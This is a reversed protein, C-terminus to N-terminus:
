QNREMYAVEERFGGAAIERIKAPMNTHDIREDPILVDANELDVTKIMRQNLLFAELYAADEGAIEILKERVAQGTFAFFPAYNRYLPVTLNFQFLCRLIRPPNSWEQRDQRNEFPRTDEDLPNARTDQLLPPPPLEYHIKNLGLLNKIRDLLSSM